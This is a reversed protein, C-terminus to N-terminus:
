APAPQFVTHAHAFESINVMESYVITSGVRRPQANVSNPRPGSLLVNDLYVAFNGNAHKYVELSVAAEQTSLARALIAQLETVSVSWQALTAGGAWPKGGCIRFDALYVCYPQEQWEVLVLELRKPGKTKPKTALNAEAQQVQM